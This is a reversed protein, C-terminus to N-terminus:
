NINLVIAKGFSNEKSLCVKAPIFLHIAVILDLKTQKPVRKLRHAIGKKRVRLLAEEFV